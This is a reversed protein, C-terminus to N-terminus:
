ITGPRGLEARAPPPGESLVLINAAWQPLSPPQESIEHPPRLWRLGGRGSICREQYLLPGARPRVRRISRTEQGSPWASTLTHPSEGSWAQTLCPLDLARAPERPSGDTPFALHPPPSPSQSGGWSGPSQPCRAVGCQRRPVPVAHPPGPPHRSRRVSQPAGCMCRVTGEGSCGAAHIAPGRDSHPVRTPSLQESQGGPRTHTHTIRADGHACTLHTCAQTDPRAGRGWPTHLLNPLRVAARTSHLRSSEPAVGQVCMCVRVCAHLFVHACVRVHVCPQALLPSAGLHLPPRNVLQFCLSRPSWSLSGSGRRAVPSM